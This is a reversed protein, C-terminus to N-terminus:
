SESEETTMRYTLGLQEVFAKEAKMILDKRIQLIEEQSAGKRFTDKMTETIFFADHNEDSNLWFSLNKEKKPIARHLDWDIWLISNEFGYKDEKSIGESFLNYTKYGQVDETKVNKFQNLYNLMFLALSTARASGFNMKTPFEAVIFKSHPKDMYIPDAEEDEIFAQFQDYAKRQRSLNYMTFYSAYSTVWFWKKLIKLQHETPNELKNFFDAM